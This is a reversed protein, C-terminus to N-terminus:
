LITIWNNISSNPHVQGSYMFGRHGKYEIEIYLKNTEGIIVTGLVRLQTKSPVTTIKVGGPTERLNTGGSTAISVLSGKVPILLEDASTSKTAWEKHNDQDGAYFYGLTSGKKVLYYRSNNRSEVTVVDLIQYTEGTRVVGKLLGGPTERLNINKEVELFNGVELIEKSGGCVDETSLHIVPKVSITRVVENILDFKDVLCFRQEPQSICHYSRDKLACFLGKYKLVKGPKVTTPPQPAIVPPTPTTTGCSNSSSNSLCAINVAKPNQSSSIYRTWSQGDFKDKFNKDNRAWKHNPNTFRCAATSGGNYVGYAARARNYYSSSSSVCSKSPASEWGKYYIDLAYFLNDILNAARGQNVATFHWRDDVQMLGHGHGFDGRMMRLKKDSGERYHTMFSEQHTIALVARKWWKLETSSVSPKRKKMYYDAAEEVLHNLETMYRVRESTRSKSEKFIYASFKDNVFNESIFTKAACAQPATGFTWSGGSKDSCKWYNATNVKGAQSALPFFLLILCTTLAKM